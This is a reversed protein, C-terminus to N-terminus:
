VIEKKCFYSAVTGFGDTSSELEAYFAEHDNANDIQSRKIADWHQKQRALETAKVMREYEDEGADDLADEEDDNDNYAIMVGGGLNSSANNRRNTSTKNGRRRNNKSTSTSTGFEEEDEEMGDYYGDAQGDEAFPNGGSTSTAATPKNTATTATSAGTSSAKHNDKVLADIVLRMKYCDKEIDSNGRQSGRLTNQILESAVSLPLEPNLALIPLIQRISLKGSGVCDHASMASTDADGSSAFMVFPQALELLEEIHEFRSEEDESDSTSTSSSSESDSSTTSSSSDSGSGSSASGGNRKGRTKGAVGRGGKGSSTGSAKGKGKGKASTGTTGDEEEDDSDRGRRLRNLNSSADESNPSVKISDLVYLKLQDLFLEPNRQGERRLTRMIGRHDKVERMRALVLDVSQSKELLYNVGPTFDFTHALLLAQSADYESAVTGDLINMLKVQLSTVLNRLQIPTLNAGFVGESANLRSTGSGSSTSGISSTGSVSEQIYLLRQLHEHEYLLLEILLDTMESSLWSTGRMGSSLLSSTSTFTTSTGTVCAGNTSTNSSGGSTSTSTTTLSAGLVLGTKCISVGELFHILYRRQWGAVSSASPVATASTSTSTGSSTPKNSSSTSTSVLPRSQDEIFLSVLDEVSFLPESFPVLKSDSLVIASTSTVDGTVLSSAEFATASQIARLLAIFELGDSTGSSTSTNTGSGVPGAQKTIVGTCLLILMGTFEDPRLALVARGHRRLLVLLSDLRASTSDLVRLGM